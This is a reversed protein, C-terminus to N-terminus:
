LVKIVKISTGRFEILEGKAKGLLLQGVPSGASVAYYSKGKIQIEGASVSIFYWAQTTEVLSGLSIRESPQVQSLRNLLNKQQEAEKLQHGLKERELHLMARGTEHKDGASSKTESGLSMLVDSLALQIGSIRKSILEHCYSLLEQKISM